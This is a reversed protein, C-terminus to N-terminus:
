RRPADALRLDLPVDPDPKPPPTPASCGKAPSAWSTPVPPKCAPSPRQAEGASYLSPTAHADCQVPMAGAATLALTTLVLAPTPHHM